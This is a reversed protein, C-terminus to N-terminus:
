LHVMFMPIKVLFAFVVCVYFLNGVLSSNGLLLFLYLSGLSNYAYLIGFLL